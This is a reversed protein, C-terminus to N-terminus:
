NLGKPKNRGLFALEKQSENEESVGSVEFALMKAREVDDHDAAAEDLPTFGIQPETTMFMDLAESVSLYTAIWYMIMGADPWEDMGTPMAKVFGQMKKIFEKDKRLFRLLKTEREEIDNSTWRKRSGRRAEWKNVHKAIESPTQGLSYKRVEKPSDEDVFLGYSRVLISRDVLSKFKRKIADRVGEKVIQKQTEMWPDVKYHGTVELEEDNLISLLTDATGGSLIINRDLSEMRKTMKKKNRVKDLTWEYAKITLNGKSQPLAKRKQNLRDLLEVDSPIAGNKEGRMEDVTDKFFWLYLQDKASAKLHGGAGSSVALRAALNAKLFSTVYTRFTAREDKAPNTLYSMAGGYVVIFAEQKLDEQDFGMKSADWGANVRRQWYKGVIRSFLDWNAEVLEKAQKRVAGDVDRAAMAKDEAKMGLIKKTKKVSLMEKREIEKQESWSKRSRAVDERPVSRVVLRRNIGATYEIDFKTPSRSATGDSAVVKGLVREGGATFFVLTGKKVRGATSKIKQGRGGTEGRKERERFDKLDVETKFYKHAGPGYYDKVKPKGKKPKGTTRIAIKVKPKRKPSPKGYNYIWKGNVLKKSLYRHGAKTTGKEM